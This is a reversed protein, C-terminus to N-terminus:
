KIACLLEKPFARVHGVFFLAIINICYWNLLLVFLVVPTSICSRILVSSIVFDLIHLLSM